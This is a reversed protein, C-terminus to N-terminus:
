PKGRSLSRYYEEVLKRFEAPVEDSGSVIARDTDDGIKRRLTYEFRKLGESVFTQLSLLEEVGLYEPYSPMFPLIVLQRHRRLVAPSSAMAAAAPPGAQEGAVAMSPSEPRESRNM